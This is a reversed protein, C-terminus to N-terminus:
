YLRQSRGVAVVVSPLLGTDYGVCLSMIAAQRRQVVLVEM